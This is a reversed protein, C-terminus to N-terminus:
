KHRPISIEEEVGEDNYEVGIVKGSENYLYSRISTPKNPAFVKIGGLAKSITNAVNDAGAGGKGTSCSMLSINADKSFYQELNELESGDSTDLYAQDPDTRVSSFNIGQPYGHGGIVMFDIKAGQKGFEDVTSLFDKETAVEYIHVNYGKLLTEYLKSDTQFASNWDNKGIVVLATPKGQREASEYGKQMHRLISVPYRSPFSLNHKELFQRAEEPLNGREYELLVVADVQHNDFDYGGHPYQKCYRKLNDPSVQFLKMMQLAQLNGYSAFEKYPLYERWNEGAEHASLAFSLNFDLQLMEKVDSRDVGAELLPVIKELSYSLNRENQAELIQVFEALDHKKFTEVWSVGLEYKKVMQVDKLALNKEVATLAEETSVGVGTLALFQEHKEKSDVIKLHRKINEPQLIGYGAKGSARLEFFPKIQKATLGAKHWDMIKHADSEQIGVAQLDQLYKLPVNSKMVRAIEDLGNIGANKYDQVTAPLINNKLFYSISRGISFDRGNIFPIYPLIKAMPTNPLAEKLNSFEYTSKNAGTPLSEYFLRLENLDLGEVHITYIDRVTFLGKSESIQRQINDPSLAPIANAVLTEEVGLDLDRFSKYREIKEESSDGQMKEYALTIQNLSRFYKKEKKTPDYLDTEEYSSLLEPYYKGWLERDITSSNHFGEKLYRAVFDMDVFDMQPRGEAPPPISAIEYLIEAVDDNRFDYGIAAKEQPSFHSLFSKVVEVPVNKLIFPHFDEQLLGERHYAAMLSESVGNEIFSKAQYGEIGYKAYKSRVDHEEIGETQIPDHKLQQFFNGNIFKQLDFYLHIAVEAVEGALKKDAETQASRQLEKAQINIDALKEQFAQAHIRAEQDDFEEGRGGLNHINISLGNLSGSIQNLNGLTIKEPINFEFLERQAHNLKEGFLVFDRLDKSERIGFEELLDKPLSDFIEKWEAETIKEDETHEATISQKLSSRLNEAKKKLGELKEADASDVTQDVAKDIKADINQKFTEGSM